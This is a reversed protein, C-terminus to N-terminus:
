QLVAMAVAAQHVLHELAELAEVEAVMKTQIKRTLVLLVRDAQELVALVLQALLILVV